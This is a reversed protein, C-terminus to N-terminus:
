WFQWPIVTDGFGFMAKKQKEGVSVATCRIIQRNMYTRTSSFATVPNCMLSQLAIAIM